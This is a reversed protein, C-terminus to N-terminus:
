SRRSWAASPVLLSSARAPGDLAALAPRQGVRRAVSAPAPAGAVAPGRAPDAPDAAGAPLRVGAIAPFLGLLAIGGRTRERVAWWALVFAFPMAFFGWTQNFYPHMITHLVMRDLGVLGMACSRRGLAARGAGGARAPLLRLAALALLVAALASITEYVELGALSRRRRARLLDAAQLALGAADPRGAGAARDATPYHRQLFIATGVALHADQGQGEVTAFGARFLPVARGRVSCRSSSRGAPRGPRRGADGPAAGPRRRVALLASAAGAALVVALNVRFPVAAFGLVTM